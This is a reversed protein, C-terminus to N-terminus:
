RHCDSRDVSLPAQAEQIGVDSQNTTQTRLRVKGHLSVESCLMTLCIDRQRLWSNVHLTQRCRRLCGAIMVKVTALYNKISPTQPPPFSM